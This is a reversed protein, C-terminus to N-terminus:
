EYKTANLYQRIHNYLEQVLDTVQKEPISSYSKFFFKDMMTRWFFYSPKNVWRGEYDTTVYGDFEINLDGENINVKRGEYEVIQKKLDFIKILLRIEIKAYDSVKKYPQYYIEIQKHTKTVKEMHEVEVRDGFGNDAFWTDILQYLEKANFLGKYHFQRGSVITRREAM